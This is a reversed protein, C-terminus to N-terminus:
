EQLFIKMACEAVVRQEIKVVAAILTINMVEQEVRIETTVRQGLKPLDFIRFRNVSGIFGIPVEKGAMRYLYGVRLAASQAIHEIVGCESLVGDECFINGEEITLASTSINDDVGFFEDVMVIPARQPIFELVEDSSIIAKASVGM